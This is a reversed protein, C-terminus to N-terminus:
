RQTTRRQTKTFTALQITDQGYRDEITGHCVVTFGDNPTAPPPSWGTLGSAPDAAPYALAATAGAELPIKLENPNRLPQECKQM